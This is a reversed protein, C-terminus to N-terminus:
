IGYKTMLFATIASRKSASLFVNSQIIDGVNATLYESAYYGLAWGTTLAATTTHDTGAIVGDLYCYYNEADYDFLLEILNNDNLTPNIAFVSTNDNQFIQANRQVLRGNSRNTIFTGNTGTRNQYAVYITLKSAPTYSEDVSYSQGGIFEAVAYGNFNNTILSCRIAETQGTPNTDINNSTLSYFVSIKGDILKVGYNASYWFGLSDLYNNTKANVYADNVADLNIVEGGDAEVRALYALTEPEYSVGDDMLIGLTHFGQAQILSCFILSLFINKM